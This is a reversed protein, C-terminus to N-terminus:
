QNARIVKTCSLTLIQILHTCLCVHKVIGFSVFKPTVLFPEGEYWTWTFTIILEM